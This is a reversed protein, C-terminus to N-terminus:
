AQDSPSTTLPHDHDASHLVLQEGRRAAHIAGPFQRSPVPKVASAMVALQQWHEYTMSQLPWRHQQWLVVFMERQLHEDAERLPRCDLHVEPSQEDNEKWCRNLLSQAFFRVVAQSHRAIRALRLLAPRVGPYYERELLPLLEQRIRSRLFERQENHEDLRYDQGRRKLFQLLDDRTADLLPRVLSVAANLKRCQEM